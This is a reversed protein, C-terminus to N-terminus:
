ALNNKLLKRAMNNFRDISRRNCPLIGRFSRMDWCKFGSASDKARSITRFANSGYTRLAISENEPAAFLTIGGRTSLDLYWLYDDDHKNAQKNDHENDDHEDFCALMRDIIIMQVKCQDGQFTM